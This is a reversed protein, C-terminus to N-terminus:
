EVVAKITRLRPRNRNDTVAKVANVYQFLGRLTDIDASGTIGQTTEGLVVIDGGDPTLTWVAAKESDTLAEYLNPEIYSPNGYNSEFDFTLSEIYATTAVNGGISVNIRNHAWQVGKIVHRIWQDNGDKDFSHNYVTVKDTFLISM